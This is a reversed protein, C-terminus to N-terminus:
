QTGRLESDTSSSGSHRSRSQWCIRVREDCAERAESLQELFQEVVADCAGSAGATEAKHTLFGGGGAALIAAGIIAGLTKADIEM